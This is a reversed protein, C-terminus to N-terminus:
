SHRKQQAPSASQATPGSQPTDAQVVQDAQETDHTGSPPAGPVCYRLRKTTTAGMFPPAAHGGSVSVRVQPPGHQMLQWTEDQDAQDEHEVVQPEVPMWSRERVTVTCGL